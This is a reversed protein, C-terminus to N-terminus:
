SFANEGVLNLVLILKDSTVLLIHRLDGADLFPIVQKKFFDKFDDIHNIPM